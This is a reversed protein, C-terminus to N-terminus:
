DLYPKSGIIVRESFKVDLRKILLTSIENSDRDAFKEPFAIQRRILRESVYAYYFVHVVVRRSSERGNLTARVCASM